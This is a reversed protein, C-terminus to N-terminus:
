DKLVRYINRLQELARFCSVKANSENIKLEKSIERFSMKEFYRLQIIRLQKSNLYSLAKKIKIIKEDINLDNESYNLVVENIEEFRVKQNDRYSQAIENSAIKYLWAGFSNGRDEFKKVNEIAKFFVNSTLLEAQEKVVGKSQIYLCIKQYYKTYQKHIFEQEEKSLVDFSVTFNLSNVSNLNLSKM